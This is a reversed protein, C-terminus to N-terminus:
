LVLQDAFITEPAPELVPIVGDQLVAVQEAPPSEVGLQSHGSRGVAIDGVVMLLGM